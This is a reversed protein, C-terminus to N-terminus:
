QKSNRKHWHTWSSFATSIYRQRKNLLLLISSAARAYVSYSSLFIVMFVANPVIWNLEAISRQLECDSTIGHMFVETVICNGKKKNCEIGLSMKRYSYKIRNRAFRMAIEIWSLFLQFFIINCEILFLWTNKQMSFWSHLTIMFVRFLFFCFYFFAM